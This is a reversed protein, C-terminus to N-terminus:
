LPIEAQEALAKLRQEIQGSITRCMKENLANIEEAEKDELKAKYKARVKNRISKIQWEPIAANDALTLRPLFQLKVADQEDLELDTEQESETKKNLQKKILKVPNPINIEPPEVKPLPKMIAIKRIVLPLNANQIKDEIVKKGLVNGLVFLVASTVLGIAVGVPGEAILALGTGGCLMGIMVTIISEVFLAAGTFGQGPLANTADIKGFIDLDRAFIHASIELSRDPVHYKRCIKSSPEDLDKSVRSIWESVPTHLVTKADESHLYVQIRDRLDEGMETMTGIKGDRWNVLTPKVAHEIIPDLLVELANEYLKRLHKAVIQEVTDSKILQDVDERFHKLESDVRGCWALGRAVSFEPEQETYIVAEPFVEQCWRSVAKIRSVGGTLFLLEPQNGEINSRVAELGAYFVEKFSRGGLQTCPKDTLREAMEKDMFIDFVIPQDYNIHMSDTCENQEWYEESKSYYKEKLARAHLECNVRWIESESFVTRLERACPSADVCYNLLLEDMIGGGLTVEGGTRIETERGKNIYAFDTTSSGIDVVLVSKERLDVYDRLFNSQVAGVMVARSESIVQPAPMGLTEFIDQYRARAEKDWGAPCGIYFTNTKEGGLLTKNKRLAEMVKASFDRILGASESKTDLFRSKFRAASRIASATTKVASEGIRVEGSKMVAWASILVEQGDIAVIEPLSGDEDNVRAIASEGDGLDFGWYLM